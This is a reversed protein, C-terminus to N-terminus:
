AGKCGNTYIRIFGQSQMSPLPTIMDKVEGGLGREELLPPIILAPPCGWDGALSSDRQDGKVGIMALLSRSSAIE